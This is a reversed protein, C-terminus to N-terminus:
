VRNVPKRWGEVGTVGYVSSSLRWMSELLVHHRSIHLQTFPSHLTGHNLKILIMIFFVFLSPLVAIVILAIPELSKQLSKSM